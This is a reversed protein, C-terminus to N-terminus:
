KKHNYIDNLTSEYDAFINLHNAIKYMNLINKYMTLMQLKEEATATIKKLDENNSVIIQTPLMAEQNEFFSKSDEPALLTNVFFKQKFGLDDKQIGMFFYPFLSENSPVFLLKSNCYDRDKDGYYNIAGFNFKEFDSFKQFIGCKVACKYYNLAKARNNPDNDEIAVKEKNELVSELLEYSTLRTDTNFVKLRYDNFYDCMINKYDIGMMHCLNKAQIELDIEEGNSFSISYEKDKYKSKYLNYCQEIKNLIDMSYDYGPTPVKTAWLEVYQLERKTIM